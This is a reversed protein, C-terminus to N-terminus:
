GIWANGLKSQYLNVATTTELGHVDNAVADVNKANGWILYGGEEFQQEQVARWLEEAKAPDLAAMAERILKVNAPGGPQSGWHSLNENSEPLLVFAAATLSPVANGGFDTGFQRVGYGGGPTYYSSSPIQKIDITVGAAKAQQAFLTASEVFGTFANSTALTARFGEQGAAKLLSKAQEVDQSRVLSDDFYDVGPAFIDNAPTGYGSLAGEVLAPRDALLKIAQRVRKDAFPGEDVRMAFYYSVAGRPSEQVTFAGSGAQRAALFQLNPLANIQGSELASLRASEDTFSSDIVLKDLYPKGNEWYNPNRTFVSQNGPTFSEYKFPGTGIPNNMMQEVTAGNPVVLSSYVLNLLTPFQAIPMQLPVEVTLRDRKRVRKFDVLNSMYGNAIFFEPQGWTGITWVVDDATLPKGDHWEVGDRLKFTWVTADENPEWSTALCPEMELDPGIRALPDYLANVRMISTLMGPVISESKGGTILGATLTGGRVPKASSSSPSSSSSGSGCAALLGGAGLTAVTGAGLQLFRRRSVEDRLADPTPGVAFRKSDSM